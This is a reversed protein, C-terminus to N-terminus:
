AGGGNGRGRTTSPARSRAVGDAPQARQRQM